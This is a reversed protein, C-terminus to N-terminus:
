ACNRTSSEKGKGTQKPYLIQWEPCSNGKSNDQEQICSIWSQTKAPSSFFIGSTSHHTAEQMLAHITVNQPALMPILAKRTKCWDAIYSEKYCLRAVRRCAEYSLVMHEIFYAAKWARHRLLGCSFRNSVTRLYVSTKLRGQEFAIKQRQTIPM